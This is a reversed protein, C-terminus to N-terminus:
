RNIPYMFKTYISAIVDIPIDTSRGMSWVFSSVQQSRNDKMKKLSQRFSNYDTMFFISDQFQRFTRRLKNKLAKIQALGSYLHDLDNDNHQMFYLQTVKVTTVWFQNSDYFKDNGKSLGKIIQIIRWFTDPNHKLVIPLRTPWMVQLHKSHGLRTNRTHGRPANFWITLGNSKHSALYKLYKTADYNAFIFSRFKSVNYENTQTSKLLEDVVQDTLVDLKNKIIYVIMQQARYLFSRGPLTWHTYRNRETKNMMLIKLLPRKPLICMNYALMMELINICSRRVINTFNITGKEQCLNFVHMFVYKKLEEDHYNNIYKVILKELVTVVPVNNSFDIRKNVERQVDKLKRSKIQEPTLPKSNGYKPKKKFKKSRPM